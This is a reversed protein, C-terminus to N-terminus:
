AMEVAMEDDKSLVMSDAMEGDMLDAMGGGMRVAMEGDKSQAMLDDMQIDMLVVMEVALKNDKMVVWLLVMLDVM